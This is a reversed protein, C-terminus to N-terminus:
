RWPSISARRRGFVSGPRNGFPNNRAGPEGLFLNQIEEEAVRIKVMAHLARMRAGHDLRFGLEATM